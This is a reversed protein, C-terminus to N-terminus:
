PDTGAEQDCVAVIRDLSEQLSARMTRDAERDNRRANRDHVFELLRIYAETLATQLEGEGEFGLDEVDAQTIESGDLVRLLVGIVEKVDRAM